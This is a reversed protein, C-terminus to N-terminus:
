FLLLVVRNGAIITAAIGKQPQLFKWIRLLLTIGRASLVITIRCWQKCNHYRCNSEAAAFTELNQAITAHRTELAVM